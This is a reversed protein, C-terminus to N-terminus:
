AEPGFVLSSSGALTFDGLYCQGLPGEAQHLLGACMDHSLFLSEFKSKVNYLAAYELSHSLEM